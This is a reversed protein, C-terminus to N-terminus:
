GCRDSGAGAGVAAAIARGEARTDKREPAAPAMVKWGRPPASGWVTELTMASWVARAAAAPMGSGIAEALDAPMGVNDPVLVFETVGRDVRARQRDTGIGIEAYGCEAEGEAAARQGAPATFTKAGLLPNVTAEPAVRPTLLKLGVMPASAPAGAVRRQDTVSLVLLLQVEVV